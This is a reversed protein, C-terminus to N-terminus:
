RGLDPGLHRDLLADAIDLVTARATAHDVGVIDLLAIMAETGTAASLGRVLAAFADPSISPLLDELAREFMPVRRAGRRKESSPAEVTAELNSALFRRFATEHALALNLFYLSVACVKERPNQSGEVIEEYPLLLVDLGAELQLTRPDSFYRYATAKSIGSEAAAGAVTIRDGRNLLTRAGELIAERTRNKQQKRERVEPM